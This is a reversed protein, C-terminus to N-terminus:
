PGGPYFRLTDHDLWSFDPNYGYALPYAPPIGAPAYYAALRPVLVPPACTYGFGTLVCQALAGNSFLSVAFLAVAATTLRGRKMETSGYYTKMAHVPSRARIRQMVIRLQVTVLSFVVSSCDAGPESDIVAPAVKPLEAGLTQATPM